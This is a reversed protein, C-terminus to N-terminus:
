APYLRPGALENYIHEYAEAPGEWSYDQAMGRLMLAQWGERDEFATVARHIAWALADPSYPGFKFGTGTAADLDAESITDDLGGTARVIPVTGYRLSYIQNLGCPEYRSPMLFMDSGAEVLHSLRNDYAIHVAVKGPLAAALGSLRDAIARSGSGLVVLRVDLSPLWRGASELLLDFGKQWALRSVMGIVPVGDPADLGLETLLARRCAAKGSLDASDFRAPILPDVSPDWEAYDVGNLIGSLTNARARLVGDLGFGQEPTQIERAYRPSVTTIRDAAVIGAKLLNVTGHFEYGHHAFDRPDLDLDDIAKPGFVGQYGLNHITLVSPIWRRLERACIWAALAAQWDHCHIVDPMWRLARALAVAGRSLLGFRVANDGFDGYADGYLGVREYLPPDDLLYLDVGLSLQKHWLGVLRRGRHLRVELVGDIRRFGERVPDIAGYRPLVSTVRVGRRGLAAALAGTADGLGGTKAFPVMESSVFLVEM